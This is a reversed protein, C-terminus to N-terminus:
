NVNRAYLIPIQLVLIGTHVSNMCKLNSTVDMAWM